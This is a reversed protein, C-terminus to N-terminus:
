DGIFKDINEKLEKTSVTEVSKGKKHVSWEDDASVLSFKVNPYTLYIGDYEKEKLNWHERLINRLDLLTQPTQKMKKM